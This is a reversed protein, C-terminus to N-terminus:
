AADSSQRAVDRQSLWELKRPRFGIERKGKTNSAGRLQTAYYIQEEDKVQDLPVREPPTADLWRAYPM